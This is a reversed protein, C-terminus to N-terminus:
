SVRQLAHSPTHRIRTHLITPCPIIHMSSRLRVLPTSLLASSQRLSACSVRRPLWAAVGSWSSLLEACRVNLAANNHYELLIEVAELDGEAAAVM